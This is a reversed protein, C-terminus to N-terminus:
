ARRRALRGQLAYGEGIRIQRAHREAEALERLARVQTPRLQTDQHLVLEAVLDWDGELDASWLPAEDPLEALLQQLASVRTEAVVLAALEPWRGLPAEAAQPPWIACLWQPAHTEVRPGGLTQSLEASAGAVQRALATWAGAQWRAMLRPDPAPPHPMLAAIDVEPMEVVAPPPAVKPLEISAIVSLPDPEPPPPAAHFDLVTAEVEVPPAAPPLHIDGIFSPLEVPPVHLDLAPAEVIAVHPLPDAAPEMAEVLDVAEVLPAADRDIRPPEVEGDSECAEVVAPQVPKTAGSDEVVAGLGAPAAAVDLSVFEAAAAQPEILPAGVELVQAEAMFLPWAPEDPLPVDVAAEPQEVEELLSTPALDAEAVSPAPPIEQVWAEVTVVRPASAEVVEIDEVDLMEYGRAKLRALTAEDPGSGTRLLSKLELDLPAPVPPRWDDLLHTPDFSGPSVGLALPRAAGDGVLLAGLALEPLPAPAPPRWGDLAHTPDFADPEPM